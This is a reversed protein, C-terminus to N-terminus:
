SVAFLDWTDPIGKLEHAGRPEVTFDSGVVLDKVTQSILTENPSAAAAVRAGIHVAIGALDAGRLECEGTHVGARIALGTPAVAQNIALACRIAKEPGDFSAFAGDGTTKVLKGRYALIEREIASDHRDLLDHWARDGLRSATATSDVIDTFLVTRLARNPAITTREGTLFEEVSAIMLDRAEPVVPILDAGPLNVYTANPLERALYESHGAEVL